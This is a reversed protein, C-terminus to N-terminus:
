VLPVEGGPYLTSHSLRKPQPLPGAFRATRLDLPRSAYIHAEDDTYIVVQETGSGCLDAHVAYGDLPFQAVAEM